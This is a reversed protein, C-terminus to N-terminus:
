TIWWKSYPNQNLGKPFYYIGAVDKMQNPYDKKLRRKWILSALYCWVSRKKVHNQLSWSLRRPDAQDTPTNYCSIAITIAAALYFPHALLRILWHFPNWLSPFAANVIACFLQPQRILCSQTTWKGPNTNDFSGFYRFMNWLFGRAISTEKIEFLANLLSYYDDPGELDSDNPARNLLGNSDICKKIANLFQAIDIDSIANNKKLTALYESSFCIGNDSARVTGPLVPQNSLLRNGDFYSQFDERIGMSIYLNM